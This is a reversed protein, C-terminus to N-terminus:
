RWGASAGQCALLHLEVNGLQQDPVWVLSADGFVAGRYRVRLLIQALEIAWLFDEPSEDLLDIM